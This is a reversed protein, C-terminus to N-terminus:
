AFSSQSYDDNYARRRRILRVILWVILAFITLTIFLKFFSFTPPYAEVTGDANHIITPRSYYFAPHFPTSWMMSTHGMLYGMMLGNSFGGYNHVIYPTSSGPVQVPTSQRPVGYSKRYSSAASAGAAGSYTAGARSGGFSSRPASQPTAPTRSPSSYPSSSPGRNPAYSPSRSGGLSGGGRSGGFSRRQAELLPTLFFSGLLVLLVSIVLAKTVSKKHITKM